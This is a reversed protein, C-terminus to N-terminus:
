FSRRMYILEGSLDTFGLEEYFPKMEELCQLNFQKVRRLDPHRLIEEMLQKGLGLGRHAPDIILDYIEAKFIRDTLVRAFGVLRETEDTLAFILDSYELMLKIEDKTRDKTWWERRFFTYLDEIQSPTLRSINQYNM